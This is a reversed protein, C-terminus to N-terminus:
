LSRLRLFRQRKMFSRYGFQGQLWTNKSLKKECGIWNVVSPPPTWKRGDISFLCFSASCLVRMVCLVAQFFLGRNKEGGEGKRPLGENAIGIERFRERETTDLVFCVFHESRQSCGCRVRMVRYVCDGHFSSKAPPWFLSIPPFFWLPSFVITEILLFRLSSPSFLSIVRKM